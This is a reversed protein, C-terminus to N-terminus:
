SSANRIMMEYHDSHNSIEFIKHFVRLFASNSEASPSVHIDDFICHSGDNSWQLLSTCIQRDIHPFKDILDNRDIGGLFSFYYELIRRICNRVDLNPQGSARVIEKWLLQYSSSIPNGNHPDIITQGDIKRILWFSCKGKQTSHLTAVEKFFYANHSLIFLQIIKKSERAYILEKILSAIVFMTKSDLSSIPDDIIVTIGSAITDGQVGEISHYFYLFALFTKEGESLTRNAASGDERLVTYSTGDETPKIKFNTFGFTELIHNIDNAPRHIGILQKRIGASEENLQGITLQTQEIKENISSIAKDNNAIRNLESEYLAKGQCYIFHWIDQICQEKNTKFSSVANNHQEIDDILLSIIDSAAEINPALPALEIHQSPEKAKRSIASTNYNINTELTRIELELQQRKPTDHPITLYTKLSQVLLATETVYKESFAIFDNKFNDYDAEFFSNIQSTIDNSIM